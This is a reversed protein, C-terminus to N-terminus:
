RTPDVPCSPSHSLVKTWINSVKSVERQAESSLPPGLNATLTDRRRVEEPISVRKLLIEEGCVCHSQAHSNSFLPNYIAGLTYVILCHILMDAVLEM